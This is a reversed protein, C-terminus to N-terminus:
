LDRVLEVKADAFYGAQAVDWGVDETEPLAFKGLELGVFAAGSLAEVAAAIYFGREADFAEEVVLSVRDWSCALGDLCLQAVALRLKGESNEVCAEVDVGLANALQLSVEAVYKVHERFRSGARRDM